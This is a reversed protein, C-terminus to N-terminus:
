EVIRFALHRGRHQGVALGFWLRLIGDVVGVQDVGGLYVPRMGIDSILQEVIARAEDDSGCFFHDAPGGEYNPDAFNEWGYTNFARYIHAHPTYQQLSAFSNPTGARMNNAADIIIKGDLQPAYQAITAEMSAGPIAMLVVDPNTALAEDITGTSVANGLEDRLKRAKEGNPDRVGFAVQHGEAAWKRGLTGGINGAGLVAIKVTAM